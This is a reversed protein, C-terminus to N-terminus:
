RHDGSILDMHCVPHDGTAQDPSPRARMNEMEQSSTGVISRAIKTGERKVAVCENMRHRPCDGIAGGAPVRTAFSLVAGEIRQFFLPATNRTWIRQRSLGRHAPLSLREIEMFKQDLKLKGRKM